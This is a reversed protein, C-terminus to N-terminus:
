CYGAHSFWKACHGSLVRRRGAHAVKRLAQHTRPAYRKIHKKVIAWGPEIPNLDPSYPPLFELDMRHKKLIEPLRPDKHAQANDLIVMDGTRLNPILRYEIWSTFDRRKMAKKQTGLSVWGKKRLAGVMTLNDGWNMPSPEILETGKTIWAHSRSM